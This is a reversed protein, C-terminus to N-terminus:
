LILVHTKDVVIDPLIQFRLGAERLTLGHNLDVLTARIDNSLNPGRREKLVNEEQKLDEEEEEEM